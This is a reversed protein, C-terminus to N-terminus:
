GQALMVLGAIILVAGVLGVALSIMLKLTRCWM